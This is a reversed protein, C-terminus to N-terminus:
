GKRIKSNSYTPRDSQIFKKRMDRKNNLAKSNRVLTSDKFKFRRGDSTLSGGRKRMLLGTQISPYNRKNMINGLSEWIRNNGIYIPNGQKITINSKNIRM